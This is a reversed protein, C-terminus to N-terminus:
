PQPRYLFGLWCPGDDTPIRRQRLVGIILSDQAIKIVKLNENQSKIPLQTVPDYGGILLNSGNLTIISSQIKLIFNGLTKTEAGTSNIETKSFNYGGNLDFTMSGFNRWPNAWIWTNSAYEPDSWAWGDPPSPYTTGYFGMPIRSDLIWTKGLIGNTLYQWKPDNFTRPNAAATQVNFSDTVIGDNFTAYVKIKYGGEFPLDLTDIRGNGMAILANNSNAYARWLVNATSTLSLALLNGGTKENLSIGDLQKNTYILRSKDVVGSIDTRDEAPKCGNVALLLLFGFYIFSNRM